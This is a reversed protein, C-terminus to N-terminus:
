GLRQVRQIASARVSSRDIPMVPLMRGHAGRSLNRAAQQINDTTQMSNTTRVQDTLLAVIARSDSSAAGEAQM